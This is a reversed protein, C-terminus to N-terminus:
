WQLKYTELVLASSYDMTLALCFIQCGCIPGITLCSKVNALSVIKVLLYKSKCFKPMHLKKLWTSSVQIIITSVETVACVDNCSEARSGQIFALSCRNAVVKQYCICCLWVSSCTVKTISWQLACEASAASCRVKHTWLAKSPLLVEKCCWRIDRLLSQM